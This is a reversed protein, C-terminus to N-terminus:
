AAAEPSRRLLPLLLMLIVVAGTIAIVVGEHGVLFDGLATFAAVTPGMGLLTAALFPRLPVGIAGSAYSVVDFSALPVLRLLLIGRFGHRRWFTEVAAAGEGFAWRFPARGAGRAILYAAVSGAGQGAFASLFGVPFGFLVGGMAAVLGNPIVVVVAALVMFGTVLLPGAWGAAAVRERLGSEPRFLGLNASLHYLAALAAIAAAMLLLARARDPIM